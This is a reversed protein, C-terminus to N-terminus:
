SLDRFWPNPGAAEETVTRNRGRSKALYLAQDAREFLQSESEGPILRAAGASLTCAYQSNATLACTMRHFTRRIRESIIVAEDLETDPLIVVFEEGGYRCPSDTDRISLRVAEGLTKLILDGTQPGFRDNFRKFQDVDLILISFPRSLRAAHEMESTLRSEFFRKNRLGTLPDTYSLTKLRRETEALARNEERLLTISDAVALHVAIVSGSGLFAQLYEKVFITPEFWERSIFISLIGSSGQILFAALYFRAPRFGRYRAILATAVMIVSSVDLTM